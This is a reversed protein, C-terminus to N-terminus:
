HRPPIVTAAEALVTRLEEQSLSTSSAKERSIGLLRLVGNAILNVVWVVPYLM